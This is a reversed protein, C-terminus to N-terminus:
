RGRAPVPVTATNNTKNPDTYGEASTVTFTLTPRSQNHIGFLFNNRTDTVTCVFSNGSGKCDAYSHTHMDGTSTTAHLTVTAGKPVGSVHVNVHFHGSIGYSGEGVDLAV